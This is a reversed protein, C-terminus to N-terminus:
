TCTHSNFWLSSQVVFFQHKRIITSSFVRSLGKSLLSILGTLGLPFWGQFNVPLVSASASASASAEISQGGSEFLQSLPSSGSGLFSQLCFVRSPPLLPHSPQIADGVWHVHSQACEPFYHLVSSGPMSCNMADFLTLCSNAVWCCCVYLYLFLHLCVYVCLYMYLYVSVSSVFVYTSVSISTSISPSGQHSLQYLIWRCHLLGQNLGQALFIGQLLSLSGVGTSKPMGPPESPLSAVQLAPFSPQSSGRSFPM